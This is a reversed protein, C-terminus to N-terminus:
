EAAGIEIPRLAIPLGHPSRYHRMEKAVPCRLVSGQLSSDRAPILGWVVRFSRIVEHVVECLAPSVGAWVVLGQSGDLMIVGAGRVPILPALAYELEPSIGWDQARSDDLVAQAGPTLPPSPTPVSDMVSEAENEGLALLELGPM